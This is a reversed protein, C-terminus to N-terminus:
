FLRYSSRNIFFGHGTQVATCTMGSQRSICRYVGRVRWTEGYTLVHGAPYYYSSSTTAYSRGTPTAVVLRNNNLTLCALKRGATNQFYRCHINGTPSHFTNSHWLALAQGGGLLLFAVVLVLCALTRRMARKYGM